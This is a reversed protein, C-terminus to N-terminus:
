FACKKNAHALQSHGEVGAVWFEPSPPGRSPLPRGRLEPPLMGVRGAGGGVQLWDPQRFGLSRQSWRTRQKFLCLFAQRQFLAGLPDQFSELTPVTAGQTGVGLPGGPSRGGGPFRVPYTEEWRAAGDIGGVVEWGLSCLTQIINEANFSFTSKKGNQRRLLPDPPCPLGEEM